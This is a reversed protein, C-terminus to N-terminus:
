AHPGSDLCSGVAWGAGRAFVEAPQRKGGPRQFWALGVVGQGCAVAIFPQSTSPLRVITGPPAWHGLEEVVGAGGCKLTIGQWIITTGPSPDLARVQNCVCVASKEFRVPRDAATIKSAYCVGVEPQATPQGSLFPRSRLWEMLAQSALTALHDHLSQVTDLPKIVLQHTSWIPGTDLGDAMQMVCVGTQTDGSALARQIPAAGRWRPLLSAHLNICGWRPLKLISAPLILGYAVVILVDLGHDRLARHAMAADPQGDRLSAPTYVPVGRHQAIQKVLSPTMSLGRGAVRDPQTLVCSVELELAEQHDLLAQFQQAAFAPTGAFGM